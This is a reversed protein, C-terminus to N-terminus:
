YRQTPSHQKPSCIENVSYTTPRQSDLGERPHGENFCLLYNFFGKKAEGVAKYTHRYAERQKLHALSARRVRKVALTGQLGDPGDRLRQQAIRGQNRHRVGKLREAQQGLLFCVSM